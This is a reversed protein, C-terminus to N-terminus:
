MNAANNVLVDLARQTRKRISQSILPSLVLWPIVPLLGIGMSILIWKWGPAWPVGFRVGFLQGFTFGGVVCFMLGLGMGLLFPFRMLFRQMSDVGGLQANVKLENGRISLEIQSAGLLPNQRTSNLGPGSLSVSDRQRDTIAFGNNTLTVLAAQLSDTTRNHLSASTSYTTTM